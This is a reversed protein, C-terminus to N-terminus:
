TCVSLASIFSLNIDTCLVIFIYATRVWDYAEELEIGRISRLCAEVREESFGLRRLVGYTIGLKAVAKEESVDLLRKGLWIMHKTRFFHTAGVYYVSVKM